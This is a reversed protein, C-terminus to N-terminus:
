REDVDPEDLTDEILALLLLHDLLEGVRHDLDFTLFHAAHRPDDDVLDLAAVPAHAALRDGGLVDLGDPGADGGSRPRRPRWRSTALAPAAACRSRRRRRCPAQAATSPARM